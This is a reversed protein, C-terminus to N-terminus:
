LGCAERILRWPVFSGREPLDVRESGDFAVFRRSPEVGLAGGVADLTALYAPRPTRASKVEIAASLNAPGDEVLLDVEQRRNNRWFSLGRLGPQARLAKLLECAVMNEFLSGYLYHGSVQEASRIGLLSCALGTDWFYLKPSKSARSTM